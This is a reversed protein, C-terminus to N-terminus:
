LIPFFPKSFCNSLKMDFFVKLILEIAILNAIWCWLSGWTNTKYYTYYIALVVILYLAFNFYKKQYLILGFIFSLWIFIIITPFNLWNWALHGNKAKNMSFDIPFYLLCFISFVLYLSIIWTKIKNDINGSLTFLIPQIFILFLGIKSLFRIMKKNNLNRWTFYELLQMSIFSIFYLYKYFNLVHNFYAFSTAFLSFLFTNLSVKQNWCM